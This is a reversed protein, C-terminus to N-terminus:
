FLDMETNCVTRLMQLFWMNPLLLEEQRISFDGKWSTLKSTIKDILIRWLQGSIFFLSIWTSVWTQLLCPALSWLLGRREIRSITSSGLAKYKEVNFCSAVYFFMLFSGGGELKSLRLYSEHLSPSWGCVYTTFTWVLGMWGSQSGCVMIWHWLFRLSLREKCLIFPYPSLPDGQRLDRMLKLAHRIYIRM